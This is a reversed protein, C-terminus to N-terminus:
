RRTLRHVIGRNVRKAAAAAERAQRVVEEPVWVWALGPASPEDLLRALNVFCRVRTLGQGAAPHQGVDNSVRPTSVYTQALDLVREEVDVPQDTLEVELPADSRRLLRSHPAASVYIAWGGNEEVLRATEVVYVQTEFTTEGHPIWRAILSGPPLHTLAEEAVRREMGGAWAPTAWSLVLALLITTSRPTVSV